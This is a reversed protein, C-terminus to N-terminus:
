AKKGRKVCVYFSAYSNVRDMYGQDARQLCKVDFGEAAIFKVYPPSLSASRLIVRGGSIVQAGLARAVDRATAEDLWDVHDM